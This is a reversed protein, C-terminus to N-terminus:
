IKSYFNYRKIFNSTKTLNKEKFGNNREDDKVNRDEKEEADWGFLKRLIPKAIEGLIPTGISALVERKNVNKRGIYWVGTKLYQKGRMM